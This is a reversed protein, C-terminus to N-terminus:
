ETEDEPTEEPETKGDRPQGPVAAEVAPRARDPDDPDRRWRRRRPERQGYVSPPGLLDPFRDLLQARAHYCLHCADAYGEEPELDHETVLAAPGGRLLPGVVPHAQPAYEELLVDLPEGDLNGLLTGQCLHVYGHPDVHVRLPDDLREHPCEDFSEWAWAAQDPALLTAARGRYAIEGETITQGKRLLLPEENPEKDEVGLIQTTLRFRRSMDLLQPKLHELRRYRHLDDVSIQLKKLGAAVLPRLYFGLDRESTIWYGNTVVATALGRDTAHRVAELLMPHYLFPEGGEFYVWRVSPVRRLQNLVGELRGYSFTALQHPGGFVFCHRCTDTCRYTLLVHVATLPM